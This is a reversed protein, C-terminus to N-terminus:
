DPFVEKKKLNSRIEDALVYEKKARLYTWNDIEKKTELDYDLLGIKMGLLDLIWYFDKIKELTLDNVVENSISFNLVGMVQELYYFILATDLDNLVSNIIEKQVDSFCSNSKKNKEVIVIKNLYIFLRLRKNFNTIKKIYLLAQKILRNSLNITQRYHSSFFIYRLVDSGYKKYFDSAYFINGTSKSLKSNNWFVHSVHIWIKSIEKFRLSFFQARENEHHPFVLDVGGGHITITKGNFLDDVFFFCETHWGPRGKGWPSDWSIGSITKKWLVFDEVNDKKEDTKKKMEDKKQGSLGGYDFFSNLRFLVNGLSDVYACNANVLEKILEIIKEINDTVKPIINPFFVNYLLLTNKYSVIYRESVTSESEKEENAKAIIKDDIDTLNHVYKFEIGLFNFVRVLIDFTIVPRLNGIHVEDYVTPGCLYIDVRQRKELCLETNTKGLTNFIKLKM